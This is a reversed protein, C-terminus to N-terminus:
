RFEVLVGEQVGSILFLITACLCHGSAAALPLYAFALFPSEFPPPAPFCCCPRAGKAILDPRLQRLVYWSARPSHHLSLPITIVDFHHPICCFVM